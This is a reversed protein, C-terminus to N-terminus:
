RFNDWIIKLEEDIEKSERESIAEEEKAETFDQMWDQWGEECAFLYFEDDKYRKVRKCTIKYSKTNWYYEKNEKHNDTVADMIMKCIRYGTINTKM